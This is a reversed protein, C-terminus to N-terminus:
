LFFSSFLFLSISISSYQSLSRILFIFADKSFYRILSGSNIGWFGITFWVWILCLFTFLTLCPSFIELDFILLLILFLSFFITLDSILDSFFIIGWDEEEAFLSFLSFFSIIFFGSFGFSIILLSILLVSLSLLLTIFLSKNFLFLSLSSLSFVSFFSM